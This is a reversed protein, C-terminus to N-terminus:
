DENLFTSNIGADKEVLVILGQQTLMDV